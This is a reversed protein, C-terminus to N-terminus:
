DSHRKQQMSFQSPMIDHDLYQRVEEYWSNDHSTPPAREVNYMDIEQEWGIPDEEEEQAHVVKAVLKYLSHGKFIHVPNIDLDYEHVGIMWKVRIEGLEQQVFLSKVVPHSVFVIYHNKLLYPRFNKVANYLSYAQKDMTSYNINTGQM